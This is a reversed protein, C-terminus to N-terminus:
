KEKIVAENVMRVLLVSKVMAPSILFHKVAAPNYNPPPVANGELRPFERTAPVRQPDTIYGESTM